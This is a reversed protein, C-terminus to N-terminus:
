IYTMTACFANITFIFFPITSMSVILILLFLTKKILDYVFNVRDEAINLSFRGETASKDGM